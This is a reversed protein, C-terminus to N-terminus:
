STLPCYTGKGGKHYIANSRELREIADRVAPEDLGIAAGGELVEPLTAWKQEPHDAIRNTIIELVKRMIHHRGLVEPPVVLDLEDPVPPLEEHLAKRAKTLARQAERLISEAERVHALATAAAESNPALRRRGRPPPPQRHQM